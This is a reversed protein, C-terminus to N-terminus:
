QLGIRSPLRQECEKGTSPLTQEREAFGGQSHWVRIDGDYDFRIKQYQTGSITTEGAPKMIAQYNAGLFDFTLLLSYSSPKEPTAGLLSWYGNLVEGRFNGEGLKTESAGDIYKACAMISGSLGSDGASFYLELEIDKLNRPTFGLDLDSIKLTKNNLASFAKTNDDIRAAQSIDQATMFTFDNNALANIDAFDDSLAVRMAEILESNDDNLFFEIANSIHTDEDGNENIAKIVLAEIARANGIVQGRDMAVDFVNLLRDIVPPIQVAIAAGREHKGPQEPSGMDTPLDLDRRQYITRIASEASDMVLVLLDRDTLVADLTSNPLALREALSQYVAQSADNPMSTVDRMEEYIDDIRDSLVTVTKHIKLATNLLYPDVEANGNVNLYDIDLDSASIGLATLVANQMDTDSISTMLTTLPSLVTQQTQSKIRADIRRSLQGIFPEGTLVDYGGDIRLVVNAFSSVTTLCYQKQEGTATSACYDTQTNPNYGFYGQDDTFAFPEWPDRTANNNTDIFVKSRAIHGDVAVGSFTNELIAAQAQDQEGSGCGVLVASSCLALAAALYKRTSGKGYTLSQAARAALANASLSLMTM